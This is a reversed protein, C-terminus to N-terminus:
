SAMRVAIQAALRASAIYIAQYARVTKGRTLRSLRATLSVPPSGPVNSAAQRELELLGNAFEDPQLAIEQAAPQALVLGAGGVDWHARLMAAAAEPTDVRASVPTQSIPIYFAPLMSTRYGVVPVSYSELIEATRQLDLISRAGGCVVAVPTRSLEVLDASVDWSQGNSHAGGINGSALLRIGAWHAMALAAAVTTGAALHQAVVLGLDRRSAKVAKDANVLEHLSADSLGVTLRGRMVALFAPVAGESRIALAASRAADLNVPRPLSHTLPATVLAVVPKGTQLATAVEPLVDLSPIM